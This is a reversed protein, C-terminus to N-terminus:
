TKLDDSRRTRHKLYTLFENVENLREKREVETLHRINALESHVNMFEASIPTPEEIGLLYDTSVGLFRSIRQLKETTPAIKGGCWGSVTARSVEIGSALDSQTRKQLALVTSLRGAFRGGSDTEM